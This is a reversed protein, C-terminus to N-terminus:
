VDLNENQLSDMAEKATTGEKLAIFEPVMIGGATDEEYNLLNEVQESGENEMKGLITESMEDPLRGLLAEVDDATMHKFRRRQLLDLIRVRPQTVKLGAKKLNTTEM